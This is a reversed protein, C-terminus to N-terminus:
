VMLPSAFQIIIKVERLVAIEIIEPSGGTFRLLCYVDLFSCVM